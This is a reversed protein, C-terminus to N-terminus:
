SLASSAEDWVQEPFMPNYKMVTSAGRQITCRSLIDPLDSNSDRYFRPVVSLMNVGVELAKRIQEGARDRGMRSLEWDTFQVLLRNVPKGDPAHDFFGPMEQEVLDHAEGLAYTGEVCDFEKIGPVPAGTHQIVRANSGWHILCSQIQAGRGAFNRLDIAAASLAWSLLASPAQLEEMSGSVDVLVAIQVPPMPEVSRRTRKFFHPDRVMGGAKWAALAAGDVTASPSETLVVKSSESPSVLSRLFREAGRQVDREPATPLRYGSMDQGDSGSGSAGDGGGQPPPTNAQEEAEDETQDKAQQEMERLLEQLPNEPQSDPESGGDGDSESDTQDDADETSADGDSGAEDGTEDGAEDGEGEADGSGEDGEDTDPEDSVGSDGDDEDGEGGSEGASQEDSEDEGEDADPQDEAQCGAGPMPASEDDGDTEPFLIDLIARATDVMFTGRDAMVDATVMETLASIVTSVNSHAGIGGLSELHALLVTHLLSNFDGVWEPLRPGGLRGLGPFNHLLAIQRGARLAWSTIVDMVQQDTDTPDVPTNPLLHAASARMTWGLGLAGINDAERSMIGEIRAEEMLKALAMTQRTVPEGDSHKFAAAQEANRPAWRSHRAHGAEHLLAGTLVAEQRLRFPTVTLLVRHPNLVLREPNATFTRANHDCEAFPSATPKGFVLRATPWGSWERMKDALVRTAEDSIQVPKTSTEQEAGPAMIQSTVIVV